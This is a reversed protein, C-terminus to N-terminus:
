IHILSLYLADVDMGDIGDIGNAYNVGHQEFLNQMHKSTLGVYFVLGNKTISMQTAHKFLACLENHFSTDFIDGNDTVFVIRTLMTAMTSIIEYSITKHNYGIKISLTTNLSM